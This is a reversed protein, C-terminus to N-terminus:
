AAHFLLWGVHALTGTAIAVAYPMRVGSTMSPDFPAVKGAHVGVMTTTVMLRLNGLVSRASRRAFMTVLALAGGALLTLLTSGLLLQPGLWVGVMALLKVDGAGVARLLYLPMFLGLGALLGLLASGLGLGGWGYAFLGQGAPAFAQLALGSLMGALVVVNPIRRTRIDSVAALLLWASLLVACLLESAPM